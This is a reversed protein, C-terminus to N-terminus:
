FVTYLGNDKEARSFCIKSKQLVVNKKRKKGKKVKREKGKEKKL